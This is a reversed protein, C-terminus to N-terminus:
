VSCTELAVAIDPYDDLLRYAGSGARVTEPAAALLRLVATKGSANPGTFINIKPHLELEAGDLRRQLSSGSDPMLTTRSAAFEIRALHM